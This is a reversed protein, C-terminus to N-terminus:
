LYKKIWEIYQELMYILRQNNNTIVIKSLCDSLWNHIDTKYSILNVEIPMIEPFGDYKITNRSVTPKSISKESPKIGSKTLYFLKGSKEYIHNRWYRYLQNPRDKADFVKNEIIYKNSNSYIMLDVFGKVGAKVDREVTLDVKYDVKLVDEVFSKLFLDGQNHKGKPHLLKKLLNSHQNENLGLNKFCNFNEM